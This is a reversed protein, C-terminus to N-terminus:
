GNEAKVDAEHPASQPQHNGPDRKLGRTNNRPEGIASSSCRGSRAENEIHRGTFVKMRETNEAGREEEWVEEGRQSRKGVPRVGGSERGKLWPPLWIQWYIKGM